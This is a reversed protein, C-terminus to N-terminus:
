KPGPFSNLQISQKNHNNQYYYKNRCEVSCYIAKGFPTSQRFQANCFRCWRLPGLEQNLIARAKKRHEKGELSKYDQASTCEPADALFAAPDKAVGELSRNSYSERLGRSIVGTGLNFGAARKFDSCPAGHCLNVHLSLHRGHWDCGEVICSLEEKDLFEDYCQPLAIEEPNAVWRDFRRALYARYCAQSCYKKRKSPKSYVNQGCNLCEVWEGTRNKEAQKRRAEASLSKKRAKKSVEKFQESNIYCDISCYLKSTKSKFM